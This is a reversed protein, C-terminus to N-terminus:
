LRIEETRTRGEISESAKRTRRSAASLVKQRTTRMGLMMKPSILLYSYSVRCLNGERKHKEPGSEAAPTAATDTTTSSTTTTAAVPIKRQIIYQPKLRAEYQYNDRLDRTEVAPAASTPEAEAM